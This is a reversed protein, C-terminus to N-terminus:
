SSPQAALITSAATLSLERRLIAIRNEDISSGIAMGATMLFLKADVPTDAPSNLSKIEVDTARLRKWMEPNKPTALGFVEKRTKAINFSFLPSDFDPHAAANRLAVIKILDDYVTQSIIGLMLAVARRHRLLETVVKNSLQKEKSLYETLAKKLSNDLFQALLVVCGRDSEDFIAKIYELLPERKVETPKKEDEINAPTTTEM